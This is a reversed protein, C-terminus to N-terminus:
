PTIDNAKKVTKHKTARKAPLGRNKGQIKEGTKERSAPTNKQWAEHSDGFERLKGIQAWADRSEWRNRYKSMGLVALCDAETWEHSDREAIRTLSRMRQERKRQAPTMAVPGM